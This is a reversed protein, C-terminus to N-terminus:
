GSFTREFILDVQKTHRSLDFVAALKDHALLKGIEPDGAVRQQLSAKSEWGALAHKQVMRYADERTVGADVLALLLTGSFIAGASYELNERMREVDVIMGEVVRTFRRLMFDMTICADPAIVREVASHSIDREHWLAVNELAAAAYGRILRALGCLNECLIPNKKHPMASSGKQKSSFPEHLERVETRQLHRIEVAFREISSAIVALTTFFVAHRDRHVIQSAVTEAKLGLRQLVHGEVRPSVSAYTGVAGAIKGASIENIAQELRRVGRSLEAYWSALKLGFTIPEAHIGHTRGICVANKFEEARRRVVGRLEEIDAALLRGSRMLQVAFGTDLVDSSTMGRHLFRAAPGVNEAVNTLFAIVDHKVEEEIENIRQASFGAKAKVQELAAPPVLGEQVMAELALTEIELWIAYRSEDSWIAAMEPRSYRPIMLGGRRISEPSEADFCISM